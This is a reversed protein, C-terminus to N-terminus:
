FAPIVFRLRFNMNAEIAQKGYFPPLSRGTVTMAIEYNGPALTVTQMREPGLEIRETTPGVLLVVLTFPSTNDFRLTTEADAGAGDIGQAPAIALTRGKKIKELEQKIREPSDQAAAVAPAQPAPQQAILSSTALAGAAVLAVAVQRLGRM